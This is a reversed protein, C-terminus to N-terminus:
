RLVTGEGREAPLPSKRAAVIGLWSGTVDLLVDWASGTRSITLSQRWEDTVAVILAIAMGVAVRRDARWALAGLIGYAVIHGLKRIAINVGHAVERGLLWSLWGRSQGSSFNDTSAWLIVISWVIVPLWLKLLRM